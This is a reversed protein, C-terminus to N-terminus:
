WAELAGGPRMLIWIGRRSRRLATMPDVKVVRRTSWTRGSAKWPAESLQM